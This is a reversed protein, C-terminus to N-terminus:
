QLARIPTWRMVLRIIKRKKTGKVLEHMAIFVGVGPMGAMGPVASFPVAVNLAVQLPAPVAHSAIPSMTVATSHEATGPSIEHQLFSVPQRHKVAHAMHGTLRIVTSVAFEASGPDFTHM